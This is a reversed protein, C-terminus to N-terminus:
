EVDIARIVAMPILTTAEPAPRRIIVYTPYIEVKTGKPITGLTIGSPNYHVARLDFTHLPPSACGSGTVLFAALLFAQWLWPRSQVAGATTRCEGVKPQTNM